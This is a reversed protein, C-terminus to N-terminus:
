NKCITNLYEKLEIQFLAGKILDEVLFLETKTVAIDVQEVSTRLLFTGCSTQKICHTCPSNKTDEICNVFTKLENKVLYFGVNKIIVQYSNNNGNQIDHEWQFVIGITNHHIRKIGQM